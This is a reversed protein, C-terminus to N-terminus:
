ASANQIASAYVSQTQRAVDQWTLSAVAASGALALRRATAPDGSLSVVIDRLAHVDGVDILRGTVHDQVADTLGGTRAAVVTAGAAQAERAVLGSPEYRSPVVVVDAAAYLAGLDRRALWGPMILLDGVALDTALRELDRGYSGRGALVVRVGPYAERLDPLARILTSFGKEWELRGAAAVLPGTTQRPGAQRELWYERAARVPGPGCRWAAVDVANPVVTVKHAPAGLVDCIETAMAQSCVIVADADAVAAQELAHIQAPVGDETSADIRGQRRGWETAHVTLVFQAGTLDAVRRGARAGIWDHAHVIAPPDSKAVDLAADGMALDLETAAGVLQTWPLRPSPRKARVVSIGRRLHTGPPVRRGPDTVDEAATVVTVDLGALHQARVLHEAHRALGGYIVPPFEWVLHMVPLPHPDTM